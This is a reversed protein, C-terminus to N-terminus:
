NVTMMQIEPTGVACLCYVIFFICKNFYAELFSEFYLFTKLKSFCCKYVPVYLFRNHHRISDNAHHMILLQFQCCSTISFPWSIRHSFEHVLICCVRLWNFSNTIYVCVTIQPFIQVLNMFRNYFIMVYCLGNGCNFRWDTQFDGEFLM